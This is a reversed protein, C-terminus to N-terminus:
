PHLERWKRVAEPARPYLPLLHAPEVADRGASVALVSAPDFVPHVVIAPAHGADTLAQLLRPEAIVTGPENVLAALTQIGGDDTPAGDDFRQCWVDDRKWALAVTAHGTVQGGLRHVIAQATPVAICSAGTARAITKATTVAIRISTYGGPGASVAIRSIDGPAVDNRRCLRDIAPMLADDHRSAPMLPEVDVENGPIGLAVGAADPAAAPNSTEIALTLFSM